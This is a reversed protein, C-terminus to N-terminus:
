NKKEHDVRKALLEHSNTLGKNLSCILKEIHYSFMQLIFANVKKKKVIILKALTTSFM